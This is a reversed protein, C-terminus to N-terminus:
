RGRSRAKPRRERRIKTFGRLRAPADQELGRQADANAEIQSRSSPRGFANMRACISCFGRTCSISGRSVHLSITFVCARKMFVQPRSRTRKKPGTTM